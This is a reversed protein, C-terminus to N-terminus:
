PAVGWLAMVTTYEASLAFWKGLFEAKKICTKVEDTAEREFRAMSRPRSEAIVCSQQVKLLGGASAFLVAEKVLPVLARAREAFGVIVRPNEGVWSVLSTRTTTPLRERTSKHLVVPVVLFSLAYPQPEHATTRYARACSWLLTGVFAPNLLRAQETPREPWPALTM